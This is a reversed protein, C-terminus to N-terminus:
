RFLPNGKRSVSGDKFSVVLSCRATELSTAGVCAIDSGKRGKGEAGWSTEKNDPNQALLGLIEKASEGRFVILANESNRQQGPEDYVLYATGKSYKASAAVSAPARGGAKAPFYKSGTQTHALDFVGPDFAEGGLAVSGDQTLDFACAYDIRKRKPNSMRSCSLQKGKVNVHLDGKVGTSKLADTNVKQERKERLMRFLLEAAKGRVLVFAKGEGVAVQSETVGTLETVRMKKGGFGSGDPAILFSVLTLLTITRM